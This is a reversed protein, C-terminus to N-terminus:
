STTAVPTGYSIGSLHNFISISTGKHRACVTVLHQPPPMNGLTGDNLVKGPCKFEFSYFTSSIQRCYWRHHKPFQSSLNVVSQKHSSSPLFLGLVAGFDQRTPTSNSKMFKILFCEWLVQSHKAPPFSSLSYNSTPISPNILRVSQYPMVSIFLHHEALISDTWGTIELNFYLHSRHRRKAPVSCLLHTISVCLHVM